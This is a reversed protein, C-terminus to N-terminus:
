RRVVGLQAHLLQRLRRVGDEGVRRQVVRLAESM